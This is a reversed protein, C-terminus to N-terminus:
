TLRLGRDKSASEVARVFGKADHHHPLHGHLTDIADHTM